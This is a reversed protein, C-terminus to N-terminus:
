LWRSIMSRFCCGDVYEGGLVPNNVLYKLASHDIHMKFHGGLISHRFKYLAYVMAFGECEITSYNNKANSLKMRAFSIPHDLERILVTVM